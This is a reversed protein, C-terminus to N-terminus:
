TPKYVGEALFHLAMGARGRQPGPANEALTELTAYAEQPVVALLEHAANLRVQANPHKLLPLLARRSQAGRARLIKSIEHIARYLRTYVPVAVADDEEYTTEFQELSMDTFQKVLEEDTLENLDNGSM